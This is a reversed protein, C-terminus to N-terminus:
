RGENREKTINQVPRRTQGKGWLAIPNRLGLELPTVLQRFEGESESEVFGGKTVDRM